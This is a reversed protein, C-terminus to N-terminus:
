HKDGDQQGKEREACGLSLCDDNVPPWDPDSKALGSPDVDQVSTVAGKDDVAALEEVAVAIDDSLEASGDIGALCHREIEVAVGNRACLITNLNVDHDFARYRMEPINKETQLHEIVRIALCGNKDAIGAYLESVFAAHQKALRRMQSIRPLESDKPTSRTSHSSGEPTERDQPGDSRVEM